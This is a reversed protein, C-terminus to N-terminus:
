CCCSVMRLTSTSSSSGGSSGSSSSPSYKLQNPQLGGNNSGAAGTVAVLVAGGDAHVARLITSSSRRASNPTEKGSTTTSSSCCSANSERRNSGNIAGNNPNTKSLKGVATTASAAAALSSNPSICASELSERRVDDNGGGGASSTATPQELEDNETAVSPTSGLTSVSASSPSTYEEPGITVSLPLLSDRGGSGASGRSASGGRRRRNRRGSIAASSHGNIDNIADHTLSEDMEMSDNLGNGNNTTTTTAAATTGGASDDMATNDFDDNDIIPDVLSGGGRSFISSERRREKRPRRASSNRRGGTLKYPTHRKQGRRSSSRGVRGGSRAPEDGGNDGVIIEDFDDDWEALLAVNRATERSVGYEEQQKQVNQVDLLELPFIQQVVSSPIPTMETIPLTSDFEAATNNGFKVSSSHQHEKATRLTNISTTNNNTPDVLGLRTINNKPTLDEETPTSPRRNLPLVVANTDNSPVHVYVPSHHLIRRPTMSTNGPHNSKKKTSLSNKNTIHQSHLPLAFM